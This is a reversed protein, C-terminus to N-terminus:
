GTRNQMAVLNTVSKPEPATNESAAAEGTILDSYVMLTVAHDANGLWESVKRFDKGLDLWTHAATHRLDHLRVGAVADTTLETTGDDRRRTPKASQSV